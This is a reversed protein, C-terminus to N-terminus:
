LPVDRRMLYGFRKTLINYPVGEGDRAHIHAVAAGKEYCAVLDKAIEEPTVPVHPTMSKTPVNGTPAITIILKEM